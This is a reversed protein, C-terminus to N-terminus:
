RQELFLPSIRMLVGSVDHAQRVARPTQQEAVMAHMTQGDRRKTDCKIGVLELQSLKTSRHNPSSVCFATRRPANVLTGSKTCEMSAKKAAHFSCGRAKTQVAFSSSM